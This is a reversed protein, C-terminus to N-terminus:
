DSDRGDMKAGCHPCYRFTGGSLEDCSSCYYKPGNGVWTGHKIRQVDAAEMQRIAGLIACEAGELSFLGKAKASQIAQYIGKGITERSIFQEAM